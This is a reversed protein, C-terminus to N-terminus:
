KGEQGTVKTGRGIILKGEEILRQQLTITARDQNVRSAVSGITGELRAIGAEINAARKAGTDLGISITHQKAIIDQQQDIVRQIDARVATLGTSETAHNIGYLYSAYGIIVAIIIGVCIKQLDNM